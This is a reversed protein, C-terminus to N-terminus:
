IQKMELVVLVSESMNEISHKQLARGLVQKVKGLGYHDEDLIGQAKNLDPKMVKEKKWSISTVFDLYDYLTGYEHSNQGEQKMRNLVKAAEKKATENMGNDVLKDEFRQIDTVNEPHMKDLEKQLYDMQRKLAQERYLQKSEEAQEESVKRQISSIEMFEYMAKEMLNMRERLSDTAIIAYKEESSLRLYASLTCVDEELSHLSLVYDRVGRGWQNAKVFDLRANRVEEFGDERELESIDQIDERSM